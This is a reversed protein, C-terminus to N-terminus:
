LFPIAGIRLLAAENAQAAQAEVQLRRAENILLAAGQLVVEGQPTAILGRRTREFLLFGFAEELESLSKSIAPQTLNLREAARRIGGTDDLVVLMQLHRFRLRALLRAPDAMSPM